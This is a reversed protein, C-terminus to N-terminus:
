LTVTFSLNKWDHLQSLGCDLKESRKVDSILSMAPHVEEGANNNNEETIINSVPGWQQSPFYSKAKLKIFNQLLYEALCSSKTTVKDHSWCIM